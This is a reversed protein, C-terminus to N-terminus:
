WKKVRIVAQITHNQGPELKIACDATNATEVCLMRTWEDDALDAMAKARESWPNWVVTARSGAKEISISRKMVPDDIICTSETDLYVRDTEASFNIRTAQETKYDSHVKDFYRSGALGTLTAQRVDGVSFYSHLAEQFVFNSRDTNTVTLNMTLDIGFIVSFRAAFDYPWYRRTAESAKLSCVVRAADDVREVSDLNWQLLRAFGHMPADKSDAKPGFWPWCIPVGGRIPKDAQFLSDRSLFLVEQQGRPCFGTVHAGHLYIEGEADPTSLTLKELKGQGTTLRGARPDIARSEMMKDM